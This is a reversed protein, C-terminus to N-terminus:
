PRHQRELGDRVEALATVGAREVGEPLRELAPSGPHEVHVDVDIVVAGDERGATRGAAEAVAQDRCSRDRHLLDVHTRVVAHVRVDAREVDHRDDGEVVGQVLVRLAEHVLEGVTERRETQGDEQVGVRTSSASGVLEAAPAELRQRACPM